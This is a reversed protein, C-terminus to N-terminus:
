KTNFNWSRLSFPFYNFVVFIIALLKGDKPRIATTKTNKFCKEKRRLRSIKVGFLLKWYSWNSIYCLTQSWTNWVFRLFVIFDYAAKIMAVSSNDNWKVYLESTELYKIRMKHMAKYKIKWCQLLRWSISLSVLRGRSNGALKQLKEM